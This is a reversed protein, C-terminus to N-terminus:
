PKKGRKPTNSKPNNEIAEQLLDQKIRGEQAIHTEVEVLQTNIKNQLVAIFTADIGTIPIYNLSTRIAKIERLSLDELSYVIM